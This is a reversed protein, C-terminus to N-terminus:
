REGTKAKWISFSGKIAETCCLQRFTTAYRPSVSLKRLVAENAPDWSGLAGVIFGDVEVRRYGKARLLPKLYEYKDEKAQRADQFAVEGEFPVAVDIVFAESKERNLVVLDPRLAMTDGPVVQERLQAGKWAPIARVLRHLINNHRARMLGVHPPCHNIVHALTEQELHCKPCSVDRIAEGSRRRVTRTPLLNLRAKHAFRYEGFSTYKGGRIWHNSAPHAGVCEAARGQDKASKWRTFHGEQVVARMARCIVGKKLPGYDTGAISLQRSALGLSAQCIQLSRRVRSWLSKIDGQQGEGNEPPSNLFEEPTRTGKSRKRASDGLAALATDRVLPDKSTVLLRYATSVGYIHVEDEIRPLGLGGARTPSFMFADTTRKPLRLNAKVLTKVKKDLARAWGLTPLQNQLSYVLRPKAFRHIADLKQWDTLESTAILEVDRTYEGGVKDLDPSHDAGTKVGLYKYRDAWAMAPVTVHGIKFVEKAVRQRARYARIIALTACKRPSFTLGAWTSARYIRDLVQQMLEPTPALVCLDDAYALSRIVSNAMRYGARPVGEAARILVEMVLNFLIPSLPCGQKVGRKITIPATTAGKTRVSTTTNHYIDKVVKLTTGELGALEMVRFLIEHPVSGYADKLDLWTLFAAKKKRRSDQLVSTMLHNHELCGELPLFGKQSPSMIGMDVAWGSIRRAIIATYVKYLTNQLAIPRWNDLVQPDDGKHILITFSTKWAPPIKGNVRCTNLIGTVIEQNSDLYKWTRYHIRDPGSASGMDMAQLTRKVEEPSIMTDMVDSQTVQSWLHFPPPATLDIGQPAALKATFYQTVEAIPVECRLPPPTHRIAEMCKKPSTNYNRQLNAMRTITRNRGQSRQSGEEQEQEGRPGWRRKQGQRRAWAQQPSDVKSREFAWRSLGATWRELGQCWRTWDTPTLTKGTLPMLTAFLKNPARDDKTNMELPPATTPFHNPTPALPRTITPQGTVNTRPRHQDGNGDGENGRSVPQTPRPHLHSPKQRRGSTDAGKKAQPHSKGARGEKGGGRPQGSSIPGRRGKDRNEGPHHGGGRGMVERNPPVSCKGGRGGAGKNTSKGLPSKGRGNQSDKWSIGKRLTPTTLPMEHGPTVPTTYNRPGPTHITENGVRGQMYDRLAYDPGHRPPYAPQTPSPSTLERQPNGQHGEKGGPIITSDTSPSVPSYPGALGCHHWSPFTNLVVSPSLPSYPWGPPRDETCQQPSSLRIPAEWDLIDGLDLSNPFEGGTQTLPNEPVWQSPSPTAMLSDLTRVVDETPPLEKRPHPGEELTQTRTPIGPLAGGEREGAPGRLTQLAREAEELIARTRPNSSLPPHHDGTTNRSEETNKRGLLLDSLSPSPTPSQGGPYSPPPEQSSGKQNIPSGQQQSETPSAIPSASTESITPLPSDANISSKSTSSVSPPDSMTAWVPNKRLFRCKFNRVQNPTKTGVMEAIRKNSKQGRLVMAEKFRLVEEETWRERKKKTAAQKDLSKSVEAQHWRREHNTLGRQSPLSKECFSCAFSAEEEDDGDSTNTIEGSPAASTTPHASTSHNAVGQKTPFTRACAACRWQQQSPGHTKKVHNERLKPRWFARQCYPCNLPGTEPYIRTWMNADSLGEAM